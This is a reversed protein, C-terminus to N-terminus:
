GDCGTIRIRGAGYTLLTKLRRQKEIPPLASMLWLSKRM